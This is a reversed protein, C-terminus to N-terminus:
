KCALLYDKKFILKLQYYKLEISKIVMVKPLQHLGCNHPMKQEGLAGWGQNRAGQFSVQGCECLDGTQGKGVIDAQKLPSFTTDRQKSPM